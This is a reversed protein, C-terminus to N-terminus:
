KKGILMYRSYHLDGYDFELEGEFLINSLQYKKKFTEMDSNPNKIYWDNYNKVHEQTLNNTQLAVLCGTPINNFWETSEIDETSTCIILEYNTLDAEDIDLCTNVIKKDQNIMWGNCIKNAIDIAKEDLDYGHIHEFYDPNRSVLMFGLINYWSGLIAARM